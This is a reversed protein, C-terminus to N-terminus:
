TEKEHSAPKIKMVQEWGDTHQTVRDISGDDHLVLYTGFQMHKDFSLWLRWYHCTDSDVRELRVDKAGAPLGIRSTAHM